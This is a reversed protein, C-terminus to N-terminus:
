ELIALVQDEEVEDGTAVKVESVTGDRPAYVPNEMKIAEIVVVEDDEEVKSGVEIKVSVIKGALPATIEEAM